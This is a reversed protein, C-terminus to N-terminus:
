FTGSPAPLSTDCWPFCQSREWAGLVLVAGDPWFGCPKSKEMPKPSLLLIKVFGSGLCGKPHLELSAAGHIEWWWGWNVRCLQLWRTVGTNVGTTVGARGEGGGLVAGECGGVAGAGSPKQAPLRM